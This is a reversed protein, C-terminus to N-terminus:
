LKLGERFVLSLVRGRSAGLAMRIGFEAVRRSVLYAIVGYIGIAALVVAVAAFGGLLIALFRRRALSDAIIGQMTQLGYVAQDNSLGQVEHRVAQLIQQPPLLSRVVLTSARGFIPVYQDPLASLPFYIQDRVEATDDADIGWHKVHGVVGIVETKGVAMLTLTQGIPNQHPFVHQAMVEDILVPAPSRKADEWGFLRGMRLPIKMTNFYSPSPVYALAMPAHGADPLQPGTSYFLEDDSGSLPLMDSFSAAQIGPLKEIREELSRYTQKVLTPSVSVSPSLSVHMSVLQRPDFGVQASWLHSLTRVLLGASVLLVLSLAVQVITFANQMRSRVSTAGRSTEKLADNANVRLGRLAPGLGFLFGTLISVVAAFLLVRSDIGVDESRPITIPLAHLLAQTGLAAIAVGLTGGAIALVVSETLLQRVLRKTGAGLAARIAFEKRRGSARALLLNAVNACAILLVIGVAALLLIFTPQIKGVMDELVPTLRVGWHANTQPFEQALHNAIADMEQQAHAATVGPKLRAIVRLGPHFERKRMIVADWQGLALLVDSRRAFRFGSPLVGIITYGDGDLRIRQGLAHEGGGYRTRALEDSVLAVPAAGVRDEETKFNRGFAPHVGLVPLLDAAVRLIPIHEPGAESMLNAWQTRYAAMNTFSRAAAKWDLYDLYSVSGPGMQPSVEFLMTLRDPEPYPLPRFLVGNVISFVATTAGIGVALTLIAVITFAADKRLVRFAYRLDTAFEDFLRLGRADRCEEKYKEVAGFELRAQRAAEAPDIGSDILDQARRERHLELEEAMDAEFRARRLFRFM